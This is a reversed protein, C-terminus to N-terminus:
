FANKLKFSCSSAVSLRFFYAPFRLPSAVFPADNRTATAVTNRKTTAPMTDSTLAYMGLFELM